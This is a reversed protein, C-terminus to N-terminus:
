KVLAYCSVLRAVMRPYYDPMLTCYRLPLNITPSCEQPASPTAYPWAPAEPFSFTPILLSLSLRSVQEAM